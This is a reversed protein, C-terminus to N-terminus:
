CLVIADLKDNKELFIILFSFFLFKRFFIKDNLQFNNKTIDM